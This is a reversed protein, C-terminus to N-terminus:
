SSELVKVIETSLRAVIGHPTGKPVLIGYWTTTEFAPYGSEAVTPIEPLVPVRQASTVALTRITGAKMQPIATELSALFFGLRGGLLDPFAQASGKYPVHVYKVGAIRQILEGTLHGVTGNGTTAFTVEGPKAKGAAILDKLTRYPAKAMVMFAIPSSAVVSVPTFDRLSDYPLKSYLSPNITLNSTQGMVMTYGDPAAKAAADLGINGGAGGRNDVVIQWGASETLKNAVLRSLIDTGGGPPFPVIMRIPKTPYAGQASAADALALAALVAAVSMVWSLRM